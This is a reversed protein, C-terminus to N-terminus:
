ERDVNIIAQKKATKEEETLTAEGRKVKFMLLFAIIMASFCLIFMNEEGVVNEMLIGIVTPGIIAALFSFFYYLGTYIGIHKATPALEWVIAISNINILAWAFGFTIFIVYMYTINEAGKIWNAIFLVIAGIILGIMITKKRSIKKGILGAPIAFIMFPLAVFTLMTTAGGEDLAFFLGGYVSWLSDLGQYALFWAFIAILIFLTSKEKEKVVEKISKFISLKEKTREDTFTWKRTDPEKVGLILVSLAVFMVIAVVLFGLFQNYKILTGGIAFAFVAGFGGLFNVIGNGKSRDPPSVFDPMMAVVPARWFAMSFNFILMVILLLVLDDKVLPIFVFSIASIPLGIMIFPMRRGFRNKTRDSLSGTLPQIFVGIINDLTMLFGVIGIGGLIDYLARNVNTNYLSWAASSAFFGFSILLVLKANFVPKKQWPSLQEIKEESM